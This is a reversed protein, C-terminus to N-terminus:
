ALLYRRERWYSVMGLSRLYHIYGNSLARPGDILKKIFQRFSVTM